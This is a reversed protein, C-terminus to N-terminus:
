HFRYERSLLHPATWNVVGNTPNFSVLNNVAVVYLTGDSGVCMNGGIQYQSYFWKIGVNTCSLIYTNYPYLTNTLVYSNTFGFANTLAYVDNNDCSYIVGTMGIAFDGNGGEFVWLPQGNTPNAAALYGDSFGLNIQDYITGDSGIEPTSDGEDGGPGFGSWELFDAPSPYNPDNTKVLTTNLANVTDDICTTVYLTGNPSLSLNANHIEAPFTLYWKLTANTPYSFVPSSAAPDTGSYKNASGRLAPQGFCNALLFIFVLITYSSKMFTTPLRAVPDEHNKFLSLQSQPAFPPFCPPKAAM